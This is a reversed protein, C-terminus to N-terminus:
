FGIPLILGADISALLDRELSDMIHRELMDDRHLQFMGVAFRDVSARDIKNRIFGNAAGTGNTNATVVVRFDPHRVITEGTV